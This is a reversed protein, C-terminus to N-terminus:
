KGCEEENKCTITFTQWNDGKCNKGGRSPQPETCTRLRTRTLYGYDCTTSCQSETWERWNSWGGNM